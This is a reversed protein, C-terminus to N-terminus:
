DQRTHDQTSKDEYKVTHLIPIAISIVRSGLGNTLFDKWLIIMRTM